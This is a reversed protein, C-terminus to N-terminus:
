EIKILKKESIGSINTATYKVTVYWDGAEPFESRNILPNTCITTTADRYAPTTKELSQSGKTFTITCTGDQYENQIFSRVEVVNGYQGADTIIVSANTTQSTHNSNTNNSSTNNQNEVIKDKIADSSAMEEKTPPNYNITETVSKTPQKFINTKYYLLSGAALVLLLCIIILLIYKKSSESKKNQM